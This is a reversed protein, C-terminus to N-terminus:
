GSQARKDTGAGLMWKAHRQKGRLITQSLLAQGLQPRWGCATALCMGARGRGASWLLVLTLEQFCTAHSWGSLHVGLVIITPFLCPAAVAARRFFSKPTCSPTAALGPWSQKQGVANLHLCGKM